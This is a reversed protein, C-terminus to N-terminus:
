ATGIAVHHAAAAHGDPHQSIAAVTHGAHAASDRLAVDSQAVIGVCIGQSDVVPIRRVQHREMLAECTEIPDDVHCTHPSKTMVKSVALGSTAKNAAVANVCIDRDTVIGLLKRETNNNIVPISGVDHRKMLEAAHQITDTQTCCFPMKSMIDKVRM